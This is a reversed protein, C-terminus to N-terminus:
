KEWPLMVEWRGARALSSITEFVGCTVTCNGTITERRADQTVKREPRGRIGMREGAIQRRSRLEMQWKHRRGKEGSRDRRRGGKPQNDTSRLSPAVEDPGNGRTARKSACGRWLRSRFQDSDNVIPKKNEYSGKRQRWYALGIGRLLIRLNLM